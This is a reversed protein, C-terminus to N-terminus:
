LSPAYLARGTGMWAKRIVDRKNEHGFRTLIGIVVLLRKKTGDAGTSHKSTYGEKRAASM